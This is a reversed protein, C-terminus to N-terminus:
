GSVNVSVASASHAFFYKTAPDGSSFDRFAIAPVPYNPPQRKGGLAPHSKKSGDDREMKKNSRTRRRGGHDECLSAPVFQDPDVHSALDALAHARRVFLCVINSTGSNSPRANDFAASSRNLYYVCFMTEILLQEKPREEGTERFWVTRADM